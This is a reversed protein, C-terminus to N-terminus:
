GVFAEIIMGNALRLNVRDIRTDNLINFEKGDSEVIRSTLGNNKLLKIAEVIPMNILVNLEIKTRFIDDLAM